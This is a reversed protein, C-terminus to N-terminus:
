DWLYLKIALKNNNNKLGVQSKYNCSREKSPAAEKTEKPHAGIPHVHVGQAHQVCGVDHGEEGGVDSEDVKKRPDNKV